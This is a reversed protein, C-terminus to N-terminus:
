SLTTTTSLTTSTSTTSSTSISTSTTVSTSSSTSTTSSTTITTSTTTSISTSSSSTSTTVSTTSSTSSSTSTSVTTTTSSTTSSSTTTTIATIEYEVLVVLDSLNIPSGTKVVNLALIDGPALYQNSSTDAVIDYDTDASIAANATNVVTAPANLETNIHSLNQLRFTWYSSPSSSVAVRTVLSARIIKVWDPARFIPFTGGNIRAPGAGISGLEVTTTRRKDNDNDRGKRPFYKDYDNLRPGNM